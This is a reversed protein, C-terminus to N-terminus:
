ALCFNYGVVAAVVDIGATEVNEVTDVAFTKQLHVEVEHLKCAFTYIDM